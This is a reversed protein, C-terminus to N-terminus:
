KYRLRNTDLYQMKRKNLQDEELFALTFEKDSQKVRLEDGIGLNLVTNKGDIYVNINSRSNMVTIHMNDAPILENINQDSVVSTVGFLNNDFFVQGGNNMHFGTSGIDTCISLAMGHFDVNKLSPYNTNVLFHTFDMVNDGIVVDNIALYIQGNYIVEIPRFKYTYYTLKNEKLKQYTLHPKSQKIINNDEDVEGDWSSLFNATGGALVLVPVNHGNQVMKKFTRIVTGDGGISTYMDPNISKIDVFLQDISLDAGAVYQLKM